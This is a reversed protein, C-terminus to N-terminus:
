INHRRLTIVVKGKIESRDVIGYYRSDEGGSRNDSLVFCTDEPLKVPYEVYGEYRPTSTYVNTESVAKGNIELHEDDTINVTDGSVAVIRGIYVRGNKNIVVMDQATYQDELRYYLLLDKMKINPSMDNNPATVAGMAFGFLLWIIIIIVLLDLLFVQVPKMPSRHKEATMNEGNPARPGWNDATEADTHEFIRM